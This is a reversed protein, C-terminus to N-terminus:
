LRDAAWLALACLTLTPNAPPSTAFVSSGLVLLNPVGHVALNRDVVSDAADTGMATSGQIHSEGASPGTFSIGEVPLPAFARRLDAEITQMARKTYEDFAPHATFPRARLEDDAGDEHIGVLNERQPLMEFVCKLFMVERWRGPELRFRPINETELLVAAQQRRWPGDYLMHGHGTLSTSGQFNEVGRLDVRAFLSTQEGLYRGLAPMELGSRMLLFPNFIAHTALAVVEGKATGIEGTAENVFVVGRAVGGQVDVRLARHQLRLEVGPLEYLHALSNEITFKADIPCFTCNSLSRCQARAPNKPHMSWRASPMPHFLEGHADHLIQEPDSMLHSPLPYPRSRPYPTREPGAVALLDEADCYYDELNDYSLPWDRGVGYETRMRFDNPM